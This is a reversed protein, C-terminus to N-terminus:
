VVMAKLERTWRISARISIFASHVELNSKESKNIKWTMKVVVIEIKVWHPKTNCIQFRSDQLIHKIDELNQDKSNQFTSFEAQQDM